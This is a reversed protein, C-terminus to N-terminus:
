AEKNTLCCHEVVIFAICIKIAHPVLEKFTNMSHEWVEELSPITKKVVSGGLRRFRLTFICASCM